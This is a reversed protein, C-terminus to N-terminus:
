KGVKFTSLIQKPKQWSVKLSEVRSLPPGQRCKEIIEEVTRKEGQFVTEIQGTPLNRVWGVLGRKQAEKQIFCRFFVGQVHGSILVHAQVM